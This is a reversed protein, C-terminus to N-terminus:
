PRAAFGLLGRNLCQELAKRYSNRSRAYFLYLVNRAEDDGVNRLGQDIISTNRSDAVTYVIRALIGSGAITSLITKKDRHGWAEIVTHCRPGARGALDSLSDGLEEPTNALAYRAWVELSDQTFLEPHPPGGIPGGCRLSAERGHWTFDLLLGSRAIEAAIQSNIRCDNQLLACGINGQGILMYIPTGANGEDIDSDIDLLDDVVQRHFVFQNTQWFMKKLTIGPMRYGRCDLFISLPALLVNLTKDNLVDLYWRWDRRMDLQKQELSKLQGCILLGTRNYFENRLLAFRDPCGLRDDLM